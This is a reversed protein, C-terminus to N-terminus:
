VLGHRVRLEAYVIDSVERIVDGRDRIWHGYSGPRGRKEIIGILTYPYSGGDRGRAAVLGMNGCLHATSGTKDFVKSVDPIEDTGQRIRDNNPLSMLHKMEGSNPLRDKWMAYLFRSYDHASAKNRYTRGGKPIYEVIEVQQFVGGGNGRLVREVEKPREARPKNSTRAILENTASNRSHRIMATMLREVEASYPYRSPAAQHRYFYAQAVFPKIMSAAQRPVEENISVLKTGTTFDFVSWSTMEDASLRGARRLGKIYTNVRSQLSSRSSGAVAVVPLGMAMAGLGASALAQLFRRRTYSSIASPIEM